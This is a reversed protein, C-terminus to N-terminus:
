KADIQTIFLCMKLFHKVFFFKHEPIIVSESCLMKSKLLLLLVDRFSFHGNFFYINANETLGTSFNFSPCSHSILKEVSAAIIVKRPSHSRWTCLETIEALNKTGFRFINKADFIWSPITEQACFFYKKLSFSSALELNVHESVQCARGYINKLSTIFPGLLRSWKFFVMRSSEKKFFYIAYTKNSVFLSNIINENMMSLIFSDM